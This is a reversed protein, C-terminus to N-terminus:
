PCDQAQTFTQFIKMNRNLMQIIDKQQKLTGNFIHTYDMNLPKGGNFSECNLLNENDLPLSCLCIDEGGFNYKLQNMRSRYSFIQVQEEWTLIRNPLLYRQCKLESGYNIEKGKSKVKSLLYKFSVEKTSTKVINMFKNIKMSQIDEFSQNINLLKLVKRINSIWDGKIPNNLQAEFFRSILSESKQNLIYHLFNMMMVNIQFRAPWVGFELYLIAAPSKSGTNIIKRLCEEEKSEIM